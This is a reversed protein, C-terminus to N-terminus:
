SEELRTSRPVGICQGDPDVLLLDPGTPFPAERVARTWGAPPGTATLTTGPRTGPGALTTSPGGTLSPVALVALAAEEPAAPTGPRLQALEALTMPRIAAVLRAAPLDSQPASTAVALEAAHEDDGLLCFPTDLDALALVPVLPAPVGPLDPLTTPVGPRALADLVARFAQRSTRADLRVIATAATM